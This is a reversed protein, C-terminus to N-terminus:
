RKKTCMELMEEAVTMGRKRKPANKQAAYQEQMNKQLELLDGKYKNMYAWAWVVLGKIKHMDPIAILRVEFALISIGASVESFTNFPLGQEKFHKEISDLHSMKVEARRDCVPINEALADEYDKPLNSFKVKGHKEIYEMWSRPKTFDISDKGDEDDDGVVDEVREPKYWTKAKLFVSRRDWQFHHDRKCVWKRYKQALNKDKTLIAAHMHRLGNSGHEISYALKCGAALLWELTASEQAENLGGEPCITWAFSQLAM